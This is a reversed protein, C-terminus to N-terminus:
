RNEFPHQGVHVARQFRFVISAVVGYGDPPHLSQLYHVAAGRQQKEFPTIPAELGMVTYSRRERSVTM